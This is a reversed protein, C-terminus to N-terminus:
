IFQLGSVNIVIDDYICLRADESIEFKEMEEKSVCQQHLLQDTTQFDTEKFRRWHFPVHGAGVDARFLMGLTYEIAQYANRTAYEEQATGQPVHDTYLPAVADHEEIISIKAKENESDTNFQITPYKTGLKKPVARKHESYGFNNIYVSKDMNLTQRLRMRGRRSVGNLIMRIYQKEKRHNDETWNEKVFKEHRKVVIKDIKKHDLLQDTMGETASVHQVMSEVQQDTSVNTSIAALGDTFKKRARRDSRPVRFGPQKQLRHSQLGYQNLKQKQQRLDKRAENLKHKIKRNHKNAQQGKSVQKSLAKACSEPSYQKVHRDKIQLTQDSCDGSSIHGDGGPWWSYEPESHNNVSIQENQQENEINFDINPEVIAEFDSEYGSRGDYESM